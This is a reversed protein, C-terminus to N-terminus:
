LAAAREVTGSIWSSSLRGTEFKFSEQLCCKIKSLQIASYKYTTAHPMGAVAPGVIRLGGSLGKKTFAGAFLLM